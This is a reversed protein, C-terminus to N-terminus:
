TDRNRHFGTGHQVLTARPLKPDYSARIWGDRVMGEMAEPLMGLFTMAVPDHARQQAMLQMMQVISPLRSERQLLKVLVDFHGWLPLVKGDRTYSGAKIVRGEHYVAGDQWTAGQLDLRLINNEELPSGADLETLFETSSRISLLNFGGAGVTLDEDIFGGQALWQWAKDPSLELGNARALEATFDKLDSFQSNATYWYDGFRIHTKIRRIQRRDFQECLWERKLEGRDIELITYACQQAGIQAMTVGASLIPDAFGGSEGVLFWNEGSQREALFSWDRTTELRDESTANALLASLAEEEQLAQRYVEQPKKGLSKFYEAPIVLGISTRTPGLPIFWLWGYGLSRVQIRTAGVGIRVAWDANQWYDWIAINRLTSPYDCAVNMARRLIGSNGSADVYHRATVVEGDELELGTVRDGERNVKAVKTGQRVDCGLEACHNLLIEDYIARDVQFATLRRQGEFKAPRPEDKFEDAPFFEFNWLEPTKGWRLTAGIKIPFNAAEVKDWCGMEILIPSIPPLLSEGIHDRPFTERELIAVKLAPNYKKLLCGVTSGAPGGGIIAVDYNM